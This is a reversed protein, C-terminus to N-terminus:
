KKKYRWEKYQENYYWEGDEVREQTPAKKMDAQQRAVPAAVEKTTEKVVINKEPLREQFLTQDIQLKVHHGSGLSIAERDTQGFVVHLLILASCVVSLCAVVLYVRWEEEVQLGRISALLERILAVPNRYGIM